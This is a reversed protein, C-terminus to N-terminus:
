GRRVPLSRIWGHPFVPCFPAGHRFAHPNMPDHFFDCFLTAPIRTEGAPCCLAPCIRDFLNKITCAGHISGMASRGSNRQFCHRIMRLSILILQPL